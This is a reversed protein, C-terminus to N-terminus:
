QSDAPKAATTKPIPTKPATTKPATTKPATAESTMAKTAAPDPNGEGRLKIRLGDIFNRLIQDKCERYHKNGPKRFFSSLEHDSITMGALALTALVDDSKFDMAIKLKRLVLNNTIKREHEVMVGERRGRRLIILANLFIALQQDKCRKFYPDDDKKLWRNVQELAVEEGVSTFMNVIKTDHLDFVYRLRRLIDNNTM